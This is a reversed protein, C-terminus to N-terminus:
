IIGTTKQMFQVREFAPLVDDHKCVIAHIDRISEHNHERMWTELDNLIKSIHGLGHKYFVSCLQVADAGAMIQKVIGTADHIGTSGVLQCGIKQRFLTIWRLSHTIEEAASLYNSKVVRVKDIDIDPRYFRNFVVLSDAGQQHMLYGMRLLNTFYSGIKVAVPIKVQSKVAAIIDLYRNEIEDSSTNIDAPPIYLNLEIADAGANELDRTFAPWEHASVCNISAYVPINAARKANGILNLYAAIGNERTFSKVYDVADEYWFYMSEQDILSNKEVLIQEEFLSKLVVAGAGLDAIKRINDANATLGSSAVILPNALTKGLYNVQLNM